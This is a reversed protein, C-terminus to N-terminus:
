ENKTATRNLGPEIMSGPPGHQILFAPKAVDFATLRLTLIELFTSENVIWFRAFFLSFYFFIFGSDPSLVFFFL